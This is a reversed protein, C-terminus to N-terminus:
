PEVYDIPPAQQVDAVPALFSYQIVNPNNVYQPPTVDSVEFNNFRRPVQAWQPEGAVQTTNITAANVRFGTGGGPITAFLLDGVQYGDGGFSVTAITVIGTANVTINLTAGTGSGGTTPLTYVGPTYGSGPYLNTVTLLVGSRQTFSHVTYNFNTPDGPQVNYDAGGNRTYYEMYNTSWGKYAPRVSSLSPLNVPATTTEAYQWAKKNTTNPGVTLYGNLILNGYELYQQPTFLNDVEAAMRVTRPIM